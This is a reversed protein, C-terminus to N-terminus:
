RTRGGRGALRRHLLEALLDGRVEVDVLEQPEHGDLRHDRVGVAEERKTVVVGEEQVRLRIPEDEDRAVLLQRERVERHHPRGILEHVHAEGSGVATLVPQGVPQEGDLLDAFGMLLDELLKRRRDEALIAEQGIGGRDLARRLRDDLPLLRRPGLPRLRGDAETGGPARRGGVQPREGFLPGGRDRILDRSLLVAIAGLEVEPRRAPVSRGLRDVVLRDALDHLGRGPELDAQERGRRLDAVRHGQRHGRVARDIHGHVLLPREAARGPAAPDHAADVVVAVALGVAHVHERLHFVRAAHDGLIALDPDQM